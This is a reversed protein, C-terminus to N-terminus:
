YNEYIIYRCFVFTSTTRDLESLCKHMKHMKIKTYQYSVYKTLAHMLVMVGQNQSVTGRKMKYLQINTGKCFM